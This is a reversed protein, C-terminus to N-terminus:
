VGAQRQPSRAGSTSLVSAPLDACSPVDFFGVGAVVPLGSIDPIPGSCRLSFFLPKKFVRLRQTLAYVGQNLFVKM